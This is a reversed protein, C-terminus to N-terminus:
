QLISEAFSHYSERAVIIHDAFTIFITKISIGKYIFRKSLYKPRYSFEVVIKVKVCNFDVLQKYYKAKKNGGNKTLIM